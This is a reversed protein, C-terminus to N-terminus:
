HAHWVQCTQKTLFGKGVTRGAPLAGALAGLAFSLTCNYGSNRAASVPCIPSRSLPSFCPSARRETGTGNKAAILSFPICAGRVANPIALGWKGGNYGIGPRLTDSSPARSRLFREFQGGQAEGM